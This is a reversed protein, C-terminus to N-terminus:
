KEIKPFIQPLQQILRFVNVKVCLEYINERSKSIKKNNKKDLYRIWVSGWSKQEISYIKSVDINDRQNIGIKYM